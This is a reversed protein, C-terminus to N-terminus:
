DITSLIFNFYAVDRDFLMSSYYLRGHPNQFVMPCTM